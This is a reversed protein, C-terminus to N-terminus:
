PERWSLCWAQNNLPVGAQLPSPPGLEPPEIVDITTAFWCGPKQPHGSLVYRVRMRGEHPYRRFTAICVPARTCTLEALRVGNALQSKLVASLNERVAAASAGKIPTAPYPRQSAYAWDACQARRAQGRICRKALARAARVCQEASRHRLCYDGSEPIPYRAVPSREGRAGEASAYAIYPPLDLIPRRLVVHLPGPRYDRERGDGRGNGAGRMPLAQNGGDAKSSVTVLLAVAKCHTSVPPLLLDVYIHQADRWARTIVPAPPMLVLHSGTAGSVPTPVCRATRDTSDQAGCASGLLGFALAGLALTRVRRV